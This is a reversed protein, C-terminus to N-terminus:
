MCLCTLMGNAQKHQCLLHQSLQPQPCSRWFLCGQKLGAQGCLLMGQYPCTMARGANSTSVLHTSKLPKTVHSEDCRIPALILSENTKRINQCRVQPTLVPMSLRAARNRSGPSVAIWATSRPRQAYAQAFGSALADFMGQITSIGQQELLAAQLHVNAEDDNGDDSFM